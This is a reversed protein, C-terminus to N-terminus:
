PRYFATRLPGASWSCNRWHQRPRPCGVATARRVWRAQEADLVAAAVTAGTVNILDPFPSAYVM